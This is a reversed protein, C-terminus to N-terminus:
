IIKHLFIAFQVFKLGLDHVYLFEFRIKEFVVEGIHVLNKIFAKLSLSIFIQYCSAPDCSWSATMGLYPLFGKFIKKEAVLLGIEM